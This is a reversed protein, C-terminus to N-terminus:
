GEGRIIRIVEFPEAAALGVTAGDVRAQAEVAQLSRSHPPARMEVDYAALAKMKKELTRGIDVFMSPAFITAPSPGAWETSSRVPFSYIERVWHGPQPRCAALVARHVIEHDINLDGRHHTYVTTPQLDNVSAEVVRIVDLLPCTDMANDPYTQIQPEHVGLIAAARRAAEARNMADTAASGDKGRSGVGDTMLLVHVSRGALAHLAM